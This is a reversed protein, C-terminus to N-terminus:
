VRHIGKTSDLIYIHSLYVKVEMIRLKAVKLFSRDIIGVIWPDLPDDIM